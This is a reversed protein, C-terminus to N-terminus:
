TSGCSNVDRNSVCRGNCLHYGTSCAISCNGGACLATGNPDTPCATCSMGCATADNDSACRAGCKHTGTLCQFDCSTGDCTAQSAGTPVPCPSCSTGCANVDQVSVCLGGCEHQMAPCTGVCAARQDICMGLCLQKGSPCSGACSKGDCTANGDAPVQCPTCSTGCTRIDNDPVCGGPCMHEGDPCDPVAGADADPAIADPAVGGASTDPPVAAHDTPSDISADVARASPAGDGPRGAAGADPEESLEHIGLLQNCGVSGLAVAFAAALRFRCISNM